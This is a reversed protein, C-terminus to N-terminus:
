TESGEEYAWVKPAHGSLMKQRQDILSRNWRTQTKLWTNLELDSKEITPLKKKFDANRMKTNWRDLILTLNGIRNVWREHDSWRRSPPPKQPYIHEAHLRKMKPTLEPTDELYRELELLIRRRQPGRSLSAVEFDGRFQEDSVKAECVTAIADSVETREHLAKALPYMLAELLTTEKKGIVTWRVYHTILVRALPVTAKEGHHEVSALLVPYLPNAGLDRASALYVNLDDDDTDANLLDWYVSSSTSFDISFKQPSTKSKGFERQLTTKAERYLRRQKVDGYRSIWFHRLFQSTKAQSDITGFVESWASIVKSRDSENKATQGILFNRLLDIASLGIGRENLIEFVETADDESETEIVILEICGVLLGRYRMLREYTNRESLGTLQQKLQAELSARVDQILKHSAKTAKTKPNRPFAQIYGSFFDRDELNMCLRDEKVGNVLKEQILDLHLDRAEDAAEQQGVSGLLDRIVSAFITLSALRQQGDIITLHNKSEPYTVITGLFYRSEFLSDGQNRELFLSLDSFLDDAQEKSWSFSRQYDPISVRSQPGGLLDRFRKKSPERIGIDM